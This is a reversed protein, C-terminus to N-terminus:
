TNEQFHLVGDCTSYAWPHSLTTDKTDLAYNIKKVIWPLTTPLITNNIHDQIKLTFYMYEIKPKM